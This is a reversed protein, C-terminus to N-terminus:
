QRSARTLRMKSPVLSILRRSTGPRRIRRAIFPSNGTNWFAIAPSYAMVFGGYLMVGFAFVAALAGLVQGLRTGEGWPLATVYFPAVWLVGLVLFLTIIIIGRSIWSTGPRSVARWFREMHGLDLLLCLAGLGVAVVGLLAGAALGLVLSLIFLGAGVGELFFSATLLWSWEQQTQYDITFEGTM